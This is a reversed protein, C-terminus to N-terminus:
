WVYLTQESIGLDHAVKRIARGSDAPDDVPDFVECRFEAPYSRPASAEKIDPLTQLTM